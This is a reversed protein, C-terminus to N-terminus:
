VTSAWDVEMRHRTNSPRWRKLISVSWSSGQLIVAGLRRQVEENIQRYSEASSECSLGGILGITKM